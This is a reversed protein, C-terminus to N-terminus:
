VRQGTFAPERGELYATMAETFDPSTICEFQAAVVDRLNEEPPQGAAARDALRKAWSTALPARAGINQAMELAAAQVEAAPVVRDVLGIRLAEEAGVERGTMAM